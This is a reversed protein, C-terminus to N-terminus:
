RNPLRITFTSGIGPASELHITGSLKMLAEKVIYLGLGSGKSQENARYFMEFIRSHYERDIGQGNDEVTLHFVKERVEAHLRIYQQDKKDDHYRIANAILNSIIVKLRNKDSHISIEEPIDIKFVIRVAEPSFKLSEWVEEALDVLKVSENNIALRNNRSYDTIDKIFNDLSHIRDRMMGLYKKHEEPKDTNNIINILGMISTLPARLDHSTSYVFRDLEKNTKDLQENREELQVASYHSLDILLYVCMVTAPLAVSFNIILNFLIMEENYDRRPILPVDGLCALIFLTYTLVSFFISILREHYSFVAFAAVANAMFFVMTGTGRSESAAFIYVAINITPLLIFNAKRHNGIRHLYISYILLCSTAVHFGIIGYSRLYSHTVIYIMCVLIGIMAISGSLIAQKYEGYSSVFRNKGIIINRFWKRLSM